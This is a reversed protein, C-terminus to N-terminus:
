PHGSFHPDTPVEALEAGRIGDLLLEKILNENFVDMPQRHIPHENGWRDVYSLLYYVLIATLDRGLSARLGLTVQRPDTSLGSQTKNPYIKWEYTPFYADGGGYTVNKPHLVVLGAEGEIEGLVREIMPRFRRMCDDLRSLIMKAEAEQRQGAQQKSRKDDAASRPAAERAMGSRKKERELWRM